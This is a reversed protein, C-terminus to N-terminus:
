VANIYSKISNVSFQKSDFITLICQLSTLSQQLLLKVMQNIYVNLMQFVRLISNYHQQLRFAYNRLYLFRDVDLCFDYM